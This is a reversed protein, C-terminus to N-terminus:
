GSERVFGALGTLTSLMRRDASRGPGDTALVLRDCCDEALRRLDKAGVGPWRGGRVVLAQRAAGAPLTALLARARRAADLRAATVWVVHSAVALLGRAGAARLTGADVVTLGHQARAGAVLAPVAGGDVGASPAAAIVRLSDALAYPSRSPRRGAQFELALESLSCPSTVGTLAGIDGASADTECLLVPCPSEAAAQAALAHALTSTGAGGHLGCVVVLPGGLCPFCLGTAGPAPDPRIAAGAPPTESTVSADVEVPQAEIVSM